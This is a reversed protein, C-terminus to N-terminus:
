VLFSKFRVVSTATMGSMGGIMFNVSMASMGVIGKRFFELVARIGTYKNKKIEFGKGEKEKSKGKENEKEGQDQM